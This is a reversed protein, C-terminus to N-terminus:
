SATAMLYYTSGNYLIEIKHSFKTEDVETQIADSSIIGWVNDDGMQFGIYDGADDSMIGVTPLIIADFFGLDTNSSSYDGVLFIPVDTAGGEPFTVNLLHANADATKWLVYAAAGFFMFADLILIIIFVSTAKM